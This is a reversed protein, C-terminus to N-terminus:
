GGGKLNGVVTQAVQESVTCPAKYEPSGQDEVHVAVEFGAGQATGVSTTCAGHAADTIDSDVAPYGEVQTPRFVALNDRNQYMSDLGHAKTLVTFSVSNGKLADISDWRCEPGLTGDQPSSSESAGLPRLQSATLARCANSEYKSVDLTPQAIPPPSNDSSSPSSPESTDGGTPNTEGKTPSCGALAAVATGVVLAVTTRRV